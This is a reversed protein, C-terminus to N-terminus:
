VVKPLIVTIKINRKKAVTISLFGRHQEIIKKILFLGMRLGEPYEDKKQLIKTGNQQLTKKASQQKNTIKITFNPGKQSVVIVIGPPSPTFTYVTNMLVYIAYLLKKRDAKVIGENGKLKNTFVVSSSPVQKAFMNVASTVLYFIHVNRLPIYPLNQELNDIHSFENIVKRLRGLIQSIRLLIQEDSLPSIKKNKRHLLSLYITLSTLPTRLEHAALNIFSELVDEKKQLQQNLQVKQLYMSAFSGFLKLIKLQNSSITAHSYFRLTIIGLTKNNRVLPIIVRLKIKTKSLQPNIKLVQERSLVSPEQAVFVASIFGNKRPNVLESAPITTYVRQFQGDNWLFFSGNTANVLSRAEELLTAYVTEVSETNALRAVIADLRGIEENM